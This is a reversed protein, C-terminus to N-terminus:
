REVGRTDDREEEGTGFGLGEDIMWSARKERVVVVKEMDEVEDDDHIGRRM